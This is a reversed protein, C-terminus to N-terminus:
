IIVAAIKIQWASTIVIVCVTNMMLKVCKVEKMAAYIQKKAHRM